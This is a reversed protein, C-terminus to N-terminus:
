YVITKGNYVGIKLTGSSINFVIDGARMGLPLPDKTTLISYINSGNNIQDQLDNLTSELMRTLEAPDKTNRFNKSLYIRAM